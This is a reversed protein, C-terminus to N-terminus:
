AYVKELFRDMHAELRDDWVTEKDELLRELREQLYVQLSLQIWLDNLFELTEHDLPEQHNDSSTAAVRYKGQTNAMIACM